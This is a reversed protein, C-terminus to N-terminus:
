ALAGVIGKLPIEARETATAGALFAFRNTMPPKWALVCRKGIFRPFGPVPSIGPVKQPPKMKLRLFQDRANRSSLLNM